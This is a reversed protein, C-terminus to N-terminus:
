QGTMRVKQELIIQNSKECQRRPENLCLSFLSFILGITSVVVVSNRWGIKNNLISTLSAFGVGLSVAAVYVSNARSRTEHKFYDNILSICAPTHISSMIAFGVRIYLLQEYTKVYYAAMSICNWIIGCVVLLYKRNFKDAQYGM